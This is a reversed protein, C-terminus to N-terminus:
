YPKPLLTNTTYCTFVLPPPTLYHNPAHMATAAPLCAAFPTLEEKWTVCVRKVRFLVREPSFIYSTDWLLGLLGLMLVWGEFIKKILGDM